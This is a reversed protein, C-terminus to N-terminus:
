LAAKLEDSPSSHKEHRNKSNHASFSPHPHPNQIIQPFHHWLYNKPIALLLGSGFFLVKSQWGCAATTRQAVPPGCGQEEETWWVVQANQTRSLTYTSTRKTNKRAENAFVPWIRQICHKSWLVQLVRKGNKNNVNMFLQKHTRTHSLATSFPNRRQFEEDLNCIYKSANSWGARHKRIKNM